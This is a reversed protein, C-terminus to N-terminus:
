EQNHDVVRVIQHEKNRDEVFLIADKLLLMNALNDLHPLLYLLLM